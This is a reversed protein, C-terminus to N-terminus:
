DELLDKVLGFTERRLVLDSFSARGAIPSPVPSLLDVEGLQNRRLEGDSTFPGKSEVAKNRAKEESEEVGKSSAEHNQVELIRDYGVANEPDIKSFFADVRSSDFIPRPVLRSTPSPPPYVRRPIAAAGSATPGKSNLPDPDTSSHAM